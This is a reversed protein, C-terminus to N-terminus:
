VRVSPGDAIPLLYAHYSPISGVLFGALAVGVLLLLEHDFPSGIALTLGFRSAILPQAIPLVVHLLVVGLLVGLMTMLGAEGMVLAFVQGPRAGVSRLIATERRRENLSTLLATLMGFLGGVVVIVSVILPAKEAIGILDWLQTHAVGPLIASLAEHPYDNATCQVRFTAVKSKLGFLAATITKPTLDMGRVRKASISVGPM